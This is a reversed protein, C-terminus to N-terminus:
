YINIRICFYVYMCLFCVCVHVGMFLYLSITILNVTLSDPYLTSQFERSNKLVEFKSTLIKFNSTLIYVIFVYTTGEAIRKQIAFRHPPMNGKESQYGRARGCRTLRLIWRREKGREWPGSSFCCDTIKFPKVFEHWAVGVSWIQIYMADQCTQAKLQEAM